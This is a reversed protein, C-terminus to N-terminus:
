GHTTLLTNSATTTYTRKCSRKVCCSLARLAFFNVNPEMPVETASIM